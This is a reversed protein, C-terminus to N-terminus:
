APREMSAVGGAPIRWAWLRHTRPLFRVLPDHVSPPLRLLGELVPLLPALPVIASPKGGSAVLDRTRIAVVNRNWPKRVVFDYVVVLGGPKTVRKMEQLLQARSHSQRITSLVLSAYSVDFEQAGFPLVVGGTVLRIDADPVATRAIVARRQILETGALHSPTAGAQVWALLDTGTGCWVDCIRLESIPARISRALRHLVAFREAELYHRGRTPKWRASAFYSRVRETEDRTASM